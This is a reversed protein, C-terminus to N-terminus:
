NPQAKVTIERAVQPLIPDGGTESRAETSPKKTSPIVASKAKAISHIHLALEKMSQLPYELNRDAAMDVARAIVQSEQTSIGGIRLLIAQLEFFNVETPLPEGLTIAFARMVDRLKNLEHHLRSRYHVRERRTAEAVYAPGVLDVGAVGESLKTAMTELEAADEDSVKVQGLKAIASTIIGDLEGSLELVRQFENASLYTNHAVKCRHEYLDEWKSRLLTDECDVIQSFYRSWNSQPVMAKLRDIHETAEVISAPNLVRIYKHMSEPTESSYPKTLYDILTDFDVNHLPDAGDQTRKAKGIQDRVEKPASLEIWKAGLNKLMFQTILRRMQNEVNLIIPYALQCYRFSVDDWLTEIRVAELTRLNTRFAKLMTSLADCDAQSIESSSSFRFSHLVGLKDDVKFWDAASYECSFANLHSLRGAKVAFAPDATLARLLVAANACLPMGSEHVSVIEVKLEKSNM